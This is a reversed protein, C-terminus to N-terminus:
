IKQNRDFNEVLGGGSIINGMQLDNSPESDIVLQSVEGGIVSKRPTTKVASGTISAAAVANSAVILYFMM